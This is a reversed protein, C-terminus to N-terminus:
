PGPPLWATGEFFTGEEYDNVSVQTTIRSWFAGSTLSGRWGLPTESFFRYIPNRHM